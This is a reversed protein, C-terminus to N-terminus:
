SGVRVIQLTETYPIDKKSDPGLNYSSGSFTRTAIVEGGGAAWGGTLGFAFGAGKSEVADGHERHAESIRGMLYNASLDQDFVPCPGAEATEDVHWSEDLGAIAVKASPQAGLTLSSVTLTGASASNLSEKFDIECTGGGQNTSTNDNDTTWASSSWSLPGSGGYTGDGSRSLPVSASVTVKRNESYDGYDVVYQSSHDYHYATNGVSAYSYRLAYGYCKDLLSLDIEGVGFLRQLEMISLVDDRSKQSHEAECRDVARALANDLIQTPFSASIQQILPALRKKASAPIQDGMDPPLVGSSWGALRLEEALSLADDLAKTVMSDDSLAASVEPAVQKALAVFADGLDKDSGGAALDREVRAQLSGQRRGAEGRREKGSAAGEGYISFHIIPIAMARGAKGPYVHFSSGKGTASFATQLRRSVSKRPRILLKAPKALVLGEPGLQVAGAFGRKFPLRKLALLPTLTVRTDKALAGPPIVLKVSTRSRAKVRLTGGQAGITAAATHAAAKPIVRLVPLPHKRAAAAGHALWAGAAVLAIACASLLTNRRM